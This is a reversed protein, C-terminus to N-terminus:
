GGFIKILGDTLTNLVSIFQCDAQYAKQYRLVSVAEDDLSVGSVSDQQNQLQTLVQNQTDLSDVATKTDLGITFILNQYHQNLNASDGPLLAQNQVDALLKANTNSGAGEGVGGAAIKAPDSIAVDLARAAGLNSGPTQQVFPTFFNGGPDGNLDVGQVHQANVKSIIGAAMDDLQNLYSTAKSDRVDLLGGLKGSQITSTIDTNGSYVALLNGLAASPVTKWPNSTTGAVLCAGQRTTITLSGSDDECYSIDVLGGLQNVLQQRQDRLTNENNDSGRASAVEVNLQAIGSTLTNIQSVAGAVQTDQSQQVTQLQEYVQKFQAGLGQGNAIVQQRLSADEPTNALSSFSNFFNNISSQLGSNSNENFLAEVQQLASSSADLQSQQSLEQNVRYDIFSDRASEVAGVRVGDSAQCDYQVGQAGPTLTVRQRAYGPTNVNAVNNQTVNLGFQQAQLAQRAIELGALLSTM